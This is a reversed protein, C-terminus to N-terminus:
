VREKFNSIVDEIEGDSLAADQYFVNGEAFPVGKGCVTHCWICIPRRLKERSKMIANLIQDYDHGNTVQIVRWGFAEFKDQISGLDLVGSILGNNQVKNYDVFVVLNDLKHHAASMAAEWVQGDQLETDGLVTYVRNPRRDMKLGLAMGVAVSLGQGSDMVTAGVGPVKVSPYAPLMAGKKGIFNLESEDFFGLNALVSYWVAVAKYKSLVVFDQGGWGPNDVDYVMAPGGYIDGYYLAVLIEVLSMSSGVYGIGAKHMAILSNLRVQAAKQALEENKM